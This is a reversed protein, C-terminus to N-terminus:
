EIIWEYKWKWRGTRLLLRLDSYCKYSVSPETANGCYWKEDDSLGCRDIDSLIALAYKVRLRNDLISDILVNIINERQDASILAVGPHNDSRQGTRIDIYNGACIVFQAIQVVAIGQALDHIRAFSEHPDGLIRLALAQRTYPDEICLLSTVIVSPSENIGFYLKKALFRANMVCFTLLDDKQPQSMGKTITKPPFVYGRPRKGVRKFIRVIRRIQRNSLTKTDGSSGNNGM